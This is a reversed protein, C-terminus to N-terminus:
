VIPHLRVMAHNALTTALAAFITVIMLIDMKVTAIGTRMCEIQM